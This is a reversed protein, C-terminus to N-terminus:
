SAQALASKELATVAPEHGGIGPTLAEIGKQPFQEASAARLRRAMEIAIGEDSYSCGGASPTFTFEGFYVGNPTDYLDIRVFDFGRSLQASIEIM